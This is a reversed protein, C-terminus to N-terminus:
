KRKKKPTEDEFDDEEELDDEEEMDEEEEFSENEMEGAAIDEKEEEEMVDDENENEVVADEEQDDSVSSGVNSLLKSSNKQAFSSYENKYTPGFFIAQYKELSSSLESSYTVTCPLEKDSTVFPKSNEFKKVKNCLSSILYTYDKYILKLSPIFCNTSQTLNEDDEESSEIDSLVDDDSLHLIIRKNEIEYSNWYSSVLLKENLELQVLIVQDNVDHNQAFSHLYFLFTVILFHFKM